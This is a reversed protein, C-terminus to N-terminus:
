HTRVARPPMGIIRFTKEGNGVRAHFTKVPNLHVLQGGAGPGVTGSEIEHSRPKAARGPRLYPPVEINLKGIPRHIGGVTEGQAFRERPHDIGASGVEDVVGRGLPALIRGRYFAGTGIIAAAAEGAAHVAFTALEAIEGPRKVIIPELITIAAVFLQQADPKIRDELTGNGEIQVQELRPLIAFQM